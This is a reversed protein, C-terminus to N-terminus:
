KAEVIDHQRWKDEFLSTVESRLPTVVVGEGDYQVVVPNHWTASLTHRRRRATPSVHMVVPTHIDSLSTSNTAMM